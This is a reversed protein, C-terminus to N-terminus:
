PEKTVNMDGGLVTLEPAAGDLGLSLLWRWRGAAMPGTLVDSVDLLLTASGVPPDEEADFRELSLQGDAVTWVIPTQTPHNPLTARFEASTIEDPELGSITALGALNWGHAFRKGSILDLPLSRAVTM